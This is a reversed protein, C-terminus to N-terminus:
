VPVVMGTYILTMCLTIRLLPFWLVLVVLVNMAHDMWCMQDVKLYQEGKRCM